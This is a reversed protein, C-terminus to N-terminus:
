SRRDQRGRASSPMIFMETRRKKQSYRNGTRWHFDNLGTWSKAVGHVTARWAGETRPIRWALLSRQTAPGEELSDEQGLSPVQTELAASPNKVAQAQPSPRATRWPIQGAPMAPNSLGALSNGAAAELGVATPRPQRGAEAADTARRRKLTVVAARLAPFHCSTAAVERSGTMPLSKGPAEPRNEQRRQSSENKFRDTQRRNDPQLLEEYM